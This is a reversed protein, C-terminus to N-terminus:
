RRAPPRRGRVALTPAGSPHTLRTATPPSRFEGGVPAPRSPSGHVADSAFMVEAVTPGSMAITSASTRTLARLRLAEAAVPSTLRAARENELIGLRTTTASLIAQRGPAVDRLCNLILPSGNPELATVGGPLTVASSSSHGLVSRESVGLQRALLERSPPGPRPPPSPRRVAPATARCRSRSRRVRLGQAQRLV